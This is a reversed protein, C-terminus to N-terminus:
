YLFGFLWLPIKHGSGTEIDDAAIFSDALDRIQDFSKNKGGIEFLYKGDILFDGQRAYHVRHALGLQNAFFQERITGRSHDDCYAHTLNTNALYLKEPKTLIGDGKTIQKIMMILGGAELYHLYHYLTNRNIEIKASLKSINLEYPESICLLSLLKKLKFINKPEINFILPLDSELVVNITETLKQLYLNKNSKYFPYYGYRLYEGFLAIPKIREAIELSITVHDHLIEELTYAELEVGTEYAVFERFSMGGIRYLVARRSLDAKAHELQLASSGSFIVRLDFTDYISKLEREFGPYKHIEDIALVEGGRQAFAEAIEYLSHRAVEFHDAAFYLKKELPIDLMKLYQLIFTTKGVGRSGIIGILRDSMDLRTHMYRKFTLPTKKYLTFFISQLTDIM